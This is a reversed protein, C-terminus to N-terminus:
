GQGPQQEQTALQRMEGDLEVLYITKVFHFIDEKIVLQEKTKRASKQVLNKWSIKGLPLGQEEFCALNTFQVRHLFQHHEETVQSRSEDVGPLLFSQIGWNMHCSPISVKYTASSPVCVGSISSNHQLTCMVLQLVWQIVRTFFTQFLTIKLKANCHKLM